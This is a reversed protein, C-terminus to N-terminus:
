ACRSPGETNPAWGLLAYGQPAYTASWGGNSNPMSYLPMEEYESGFVASHFSNSTSRGSQNSFTPEPSPRPFVDPPAVLSLDETEDSTFSQSTGSDSQATSLAQNPSAQRYHPHYISRPAAQEPLWPKTDFTQQWEPEPQRELPAAIDQNMFDTWGTNAHYTCQACHCNYSAFPAFHPSYRSLSPQCHDM